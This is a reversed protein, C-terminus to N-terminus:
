WYYKWIHAGLGILVDTGLAAGAIKRNGNLLSTGAVLYLLAHVPRLSNWWTKGGAEPASMRSKTVYLYVFSLGIATLVSGLPIRSFEPGRTALLFLGIRAPICLLLFLLRPSLTM